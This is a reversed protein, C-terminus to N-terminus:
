GCNHNPLMCTFLIAAGLFDPYVLPISYVTWSNSLSIFLGGSGLLYRWSIAAGGRPPIKILLRHISKDLQIKSGTPRRNVLPLGLQQRHKLADLALPATKLRDALDPATLQGVWNVFTPDLSVRDAFRIQANVNPLDAPAVGTMLHILTAGLAYLDSAAVARGGFQEMPVYGYTGVVTFSAGELAARDQVSGFDILYLHNDEGWILNSPKIDRHLIPPQFQHLYTLITLAEIAIQEIEAETFHRGQDLWQQLSHGPVQTQVLGFWFFRSGALHDLEFYDRYRPIRPHNLKQLVQAERALLKAQDWHMQPNLALLKVIVQDPPQHQRDIALWTQQSANENLLKLLKYRNNLIQGVHPMAYRRTNLNSPTLM